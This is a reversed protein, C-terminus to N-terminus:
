LINGGKNVIEALEAAVHGAQTVVLLAAAASKNNLLYRILRERKNEDSLDIEAVELGSQAVKEILAKGQVTQGFALVRRGKKRDGSQYGLEAMAKQVRDVTESAVVEPRNLVNSVTGISVNARKAIERVGSKM